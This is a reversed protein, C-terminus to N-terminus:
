ILGPSSSGFSIKLVYMFVRLTFFVSLPFIHTEHYITYIKSYRCLLAEAPFSISFGSESCTCEVGSMWRARGVSVWPQFGM